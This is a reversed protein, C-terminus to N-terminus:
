PDNFFNKIGAPTNAEIFAVLVFNVNAANM